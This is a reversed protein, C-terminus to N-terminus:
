LSLQSTGIEGFSRLNEGFSRPLESIKSTPVDARIASESEDEIVQQFEISVLKLTKKRIRSQTRRRQMGRDDIM